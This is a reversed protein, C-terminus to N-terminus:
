VVCGRVTRNTKFLRAAASLGLLRGKRSKRLREIKSQKLLIPGFRVDDIQSAMDAGSPILSMDIPSLAWLLGEGSACVVWRVEGVRRAVLANDPLRGIRMAVDMHTRGFRDGLRVSRATRCLTLPDSTTNRVLHTM